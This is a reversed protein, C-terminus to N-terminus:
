RHAVWGAPVGPNQSEAFNSALALATQRDVTQHAPFEASQGGIVLEIPGGRQGTPLFETGDASRFTVLFRRPGGGVGLCIDGENSESGREIKEVSM